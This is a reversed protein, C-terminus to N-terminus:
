TCIQHKKKIRLKTKEKSKKKVNKTKKHESLPSEEAWEPEVTSPDSYIHFDNKSEAYGSSKAPIKQSVHGYEHAYEEESATDECSSSVDSPKSM